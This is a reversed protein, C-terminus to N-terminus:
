HDCLTIDGSLAKVRLHAGGEGRTVALREGPGYGSHAAVVGFCTSVDGSFSELDANMGAEGPARVHMDGSVTEIDLRADRALQANLKLDGSTTRVRLNSLPRLDVVLDGSVTTAELAGAGQELVINGSVTSARVVGAQGTGRLRTDGSITKLEVDSQMVDTGVDGSVTQLRQVGSLQKVEIDASVTSVDLTSARPVHITLKADATHLSLKPLVVRIETRKASSTVDLREVGSALTGSVAVQPQDWGIVEIRGAVNSIVVQGRPDADVQKEVSATVAQAAAQLTLLLSALAFGLSVRGM